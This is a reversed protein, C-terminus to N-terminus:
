HHCDYLEGKMFLTWEEFSSLKLGYNKATIFSQLIETKLEELKQNKVALNNQSVFNGIGQITYILNKQELQQYAKQITNPNISLEIALNRVSPLKEDQKLIGLAILREVNKTIQEYIPIGNKYDITIM